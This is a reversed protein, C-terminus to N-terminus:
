SLLFDSAKEIESEDYYKYVMEIIEENTFFEFLGDSGIIIIKDENTLNYEM